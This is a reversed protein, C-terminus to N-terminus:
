SYFTIMELLNQVWFLWKTAWKFTALHSKDTSMGNNQRNVDLWIIHEPDIKAYDLPSSSITEIVKTYDTGDWSHNQTEGNKFTLLIEVSLSLNGYRSVTIKNLYKKNESGEKFVHENGERFIGQEPPLLESYIDTVAYDCNVPSKLLTNFFDTMDRSSLRNVTSIFDQPSPHNFLFSETYSKMISPWEEELMHELTWLMLAPKEYANNRYASYSINEWAKNNMKGLMARKRQNDMIDARYDVPIDEFVYPISFGERALYHKTYRKMGYTALLCRTTAYVTFGEDMWPYEFENSALLGYFFQHSCEHTVIKHLDRSAEPSFLPLSCTILTPYEMGGFWSNNPLDVLTLQSYPYPVYWVGLHKLTSVAADFYESTYKKHGPTYLLKIKVPPLNDSVFEYEALQYEPWATWAFDHICNQQIKYTCMGNEASLTDTIVGTAGIVYESPVTLSVDYNGFDSYFESTLHFQHCNWGDNELVGIKPYWQGAFFLNNVYGTRPMNKPLKSTFHISLEISEGPNISTPLGIEVVTRDNKNSDDPHIYKLFPMLDTGDKSISDIHCYGWSNRDLHALFLSAKKSHIVDQMFTSQTNMFANLYLHFQLSEVSKTSTNRWVLVQKGKIIKNLPDLTAQISYDVVKECSLTKAHITFPLSLLVILILIRKM